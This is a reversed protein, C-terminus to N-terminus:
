VSRHDAWKLRRIALRVRRVEEELGKLREQLPVIEGRIKTVEVRRAIRKERWVKWSSRVAGPSAVLLRPIRLASAMLELSGVKGLWGGMWIGLTLGVAMGVLGVGLFTV